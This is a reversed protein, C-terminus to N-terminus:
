CGKTNCIDFGPGPTYYPIEAAMASIGIICIAAVTVGACLALWFVVNFRQPAPEGGQYMDGSRLDAWHSMSERARPNHKMTM